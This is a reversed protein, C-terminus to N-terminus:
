ASTSPSTSSSTRGTSAMLTKPRHRLRRRMGCDFRYKADFPGLENGPERAHHAVDADGLLQRVVREDRRELLPGVLANGVLGSGPEHRRRLMSRDVGHAAVLEHPALVLLEPSLDLSQATLDAVLAFREISREIVLDTVVQQAQHENGAMGHKGHLCADGQRQAHEAPERRGLDRAREEHRLGVIACRM